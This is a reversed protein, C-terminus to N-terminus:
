WWLVVLLLRDDSGLIASIAIWECADLSNGLCSYSVFVSQVYEM